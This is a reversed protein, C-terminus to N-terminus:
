NCYKPDLDGAKRILNAAQSVLETIIELLGSEALAIQLSEFASSLQKVTDNFVRMRAEAQEQASASAIAENLHNIGDAGAEALGIATRM